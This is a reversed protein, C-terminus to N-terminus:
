NKEENETKEEKYWRQFRDLWKESKVLLKQQWRAMNEAPSQQHTESTCRHINANAVALVFVVFMLQSAVSLSAVETCCKGGIWFGQQKLWVPGRNAWVIPRRKVVAVSTYTPLTSSEAPIRAKQRPLGSCSFLYGILLRCSACYTLSM